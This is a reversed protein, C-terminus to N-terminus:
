WRKRKYHGHFRYHGHHRYHGRHAYPAHYGRRQHRALRHHVENLLGAVVPSHGRRRAVRQLRSAVMSLVARKIFGSV